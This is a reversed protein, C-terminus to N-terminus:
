LDLRTRTRGFIDEKCVPDYYVEGRDKAAKMAWHAKAKQSESPKKAGTAKSMDRCYCYLEESEEGEIGKCTAQSFGDCDAVVLPPEWREFEIHDMNIFARLTEVEDARLTLEDAGERIAAEPHAESFKPKKSMFRDQARVCIVWTWRM